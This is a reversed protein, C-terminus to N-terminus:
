PGSRVSMRWDLASSASLVTQACSQRASSLSLQRRVSGTM